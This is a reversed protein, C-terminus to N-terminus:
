PKKTYDQKRISGDLKHIVVSTGASEALSEAYKIAELQTDFFKITKKSGEKRVRWKKFFESKPDKNQSVHYKAPKNPSVKDNAADDDEFVEEQKAQSKNQKPETKLEVKTEQQIASKEEQELKLIAEQKAQEEKKNRKKRGFFWM